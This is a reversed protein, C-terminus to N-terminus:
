GALLKRLRLFILLRQFLRRRVVFAVLRLVVGLAFRQQGQQAALDLRMDVGMPASSQKGGDPQGLLKVKVIQQDVTGLAM